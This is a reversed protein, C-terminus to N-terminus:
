TMRLNVGFITRLAFRFFPHQVPDLSFDHDATRELILLADLQEIDGLFTGDM